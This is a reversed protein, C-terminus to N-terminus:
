AIRNRKWCNRYALHISNVTYGSNRSEDYVKQIHEGIIRNVHIHVAFPINQKRLMNSTQAFQRYLKDPRELFLDIPHALVISTNQKALFAVFCETIAAENVYIEANLRSVRSNIDRFQSLIECIARSDAAIGETMIAVTCCVAESDPFEGAKDLIQRVVDFSLGSTRNLKVWLKYYQTMLCGTLMSFAPGSLWLRKPQYRVQLEADSICGCSLLLRLTQLITLIVTQRIM